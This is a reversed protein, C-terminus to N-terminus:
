DRNWCAAPLPPCDLFLSPTATRRYSGAMVTAMACHAFAGQLRATDGQLQLEVRPGDVLDGAELGGLDSDFPQLAADIRDGALPGEAVARCDAGVGAGDRPDGGGHVEIRYEGPRGPLAVVRLESVLPAAMAYVGEPSPAPASAPSPTQAPASAQPSESPDLARGSDAPAVAQTRAECAALLLVLVCSAGILPAAFAARTCSGTLAM